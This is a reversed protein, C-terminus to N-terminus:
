DDTVYSFVKWAGGAELMSGMLRLARPRGAADRVHVITRRHIRFRGYDTTDGAFEVADLTYRVGAHHRLIRALGLESKQHLDGWVYAMPLNREPRAAPLAPWVHRRFEAETLALTSLANRNGDALAALVAAALAEPSPRTGAIPPTTCGAAMTLLM